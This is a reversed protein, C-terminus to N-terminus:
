SSAGARARASNTSPRARRGGVLAQAGDGGEVLDDLGGGVEPRVGVELGGVAQGGEVVPGALVCAGALGSLGGLGAQGPHVRQLVLHRGREFSPSVSAASLAESASSVFAPM